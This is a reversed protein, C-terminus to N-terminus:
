GVMSRIIRWTYAVYEIDKHMLVDISLELQAWDPTGPDLGSFLTCDLGALGWFRFGIV